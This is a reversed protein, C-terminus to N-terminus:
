PEGDAAPTDSMGGMLDFNFDMAGTNFNIPPTPLADLANDIDDEDSTHPLPTGEITIPPKGDAQPIQITISFAPGTPGQQVNKNPKLDGLEILTKGIEMLASTPLDPDCMRPYVKELWEEVLVKAKERIMSGDRRFVDLVERLDYDRDAM